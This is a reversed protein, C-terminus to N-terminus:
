TKGTNVTFGTVTIKYMGQRKQMMKKANKGKQKKKGKQM